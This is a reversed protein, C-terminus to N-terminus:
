GVAMEAAQEVDVSVLRSVGPENMTVGLLHDAMEMTLKNHTIVVFQVESSMEEILDAFRVVNADDLPADVEDLLCVPSPNLQFIAFVLAVATMAKEGGSLLHVNANRKGPPRAMLTIGTDLLDEGTLELQAHGGGFVKPFITKLHGNVEDYTAKFRSRTERDIRKIVANLTDLAEELDVHQKDLYQKRESKEEFEEIAALNIAGLRDIRRGILELAAVLEDETVEPAVAVLADEATIGTQDLQQRVNALKVVVGERDIRREELRRRTEEIRTDADQRKAQQMAIEGDIVEMRDRVSSLEGDINKRESLVSELQKKLTPLPRENDSLSNDIDQLRQDLEGRQTLLRRRANECAQLSSELSQYELKLTHYYDRVSNSAGRASELQEIGRDRSRTLEDREDRLQDAEGVLSILNLRSEELKTSEQKIQSELERQEKKNLTRRAVAEEERVRNVSHDTKVSSLKNSFEAQRTQLGDRETELAQVQNKMLTLDEQLEALRAEADEVEHELEELAHGREIVGQGSKDVQRFRLWDRGFWVGNALIVSEGPRLKTRALVAEEMSEAAFIGDLLGGLSADMDEVHASLPQLEGVLHDDASSTQYLTVEGGALDTVGDAFTTIDDVSVAMLDTGLAVEVAREWGATVKLGDRIRLAESLGHGVLWAETETGEAGLTAQQLASLSALEHRMAQVSIRAEELSREREVVNDRALRLAEVCAEFDVALANVTGQVHEVQEALDRLSSAESGSGPHDTYLQDRRARLRLLVQDLHEVRSEQVHIEADNASARASFEDWLSQLEIVSSENDTLESSVREFDVEVAEVEPKKALVGEQLSLIEADDMELQTATEAQRVVVGKRDQSLQSIREQNFQIGEELRAIDTGLKYYKGQTDNFKDTTESQEARAKELSTDLSQLETRNRESELELDSLKAEHVALGAELARLKITYLAATTGREEERFQRYKEANRSQRKLHALQRDLEDRIDNLRDLNEVTRKIRNETERRRERYKSIGAAEELYNRLEEPKAEVLQSIMGQEIISYSRPGFGTGLFIDMVDRRRCRNGNLYYTSQADRAVERRIAIEGYSAYAGGIRADSNDFLLEISAMATPQRTSSGNFIVDTLAEGRLQRASSEGMVWRVADIINSKGCGNPGVVACTKGPLSVTTPDVFSKFGALKIAKLRM